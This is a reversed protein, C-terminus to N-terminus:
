PDGRGLGIVGDDVYHVDLMSRAVLVFAGSLFGLLPRTKPTDCKKLGGEYLM